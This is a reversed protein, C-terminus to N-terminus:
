KEAYYDGWEVLVTSGNHYYADQFASFIQEPEEKRKIFDGADTSMGGFSKNGCMTKRQMRIQEKNEIEFKM